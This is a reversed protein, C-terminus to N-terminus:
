ATKCHFSVFSATLLFLGSQLHLTSVLTALTGILFESM